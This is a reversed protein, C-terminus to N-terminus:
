GANGTRALLKRHLRRVGASLDTFSGTNALVEDAAALRERRSGQTELIARARRQDIGDRNRLREIQMSEPVDVVVVCDADRFRGTEILLPVVLVVYAADSHASIRERARAAIRPHLIRELQRRAAEDTFIKERLQQRDLAGNEDLIGDGFAATVEALGPTGPAVVERAILDTDIVPVGLAAFCDAAATKGSAIGGTLALVLPKSEATDSNGDSNSM